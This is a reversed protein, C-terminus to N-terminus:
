LIFSNLLVVQNKESFLPGKNNRRGIKEAVGNDALNTIVPGLPIVIQCFHTRELDHKSVQGKNLADM